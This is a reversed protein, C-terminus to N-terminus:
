VITAKLEPFNEQMKIKIIVKLTKRKKQSEQQIEQASRRYRKKKRKDNKYRYSCSEALYRTKIYCGIRITIKVKCPSKMKTKGKLM